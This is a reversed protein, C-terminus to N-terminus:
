LSDFGKLVADPIPEKILVQCCILGFSYLDDNVVEGCDDVEMGEALSAYGFDILKVTCSGDKDHNVLINDSALDNHRFGADHIEGLSAAIERLLCIRFKLDNKDVDGSIEKSRLCTANNKQVWEKLTIGDVWELYISPFGGHEERSFVGRVYKCRSLNGCLINYENNLAVVDQPSPASTASLTKVVAPRTGRLPISYAPIFTLTSSESTYFTSASSAVKIEAGSMPDSEDTTGDADIGHAKM